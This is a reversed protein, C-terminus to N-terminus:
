PHRGHVSQFLSERLRRAQRDDPRLELYIDIQRLAAEEKGQELYVSALAQEFEPRTEPEVLLRARLILREAADTFRPPLVLYLRALAYYCDVYDPALFLCQKLTRDAFASADPVDLNHGLRFLDGTRVLLAPNKLDVNTLRISRDVAGSWRALLLARHKESEIRPPREGLSEELFAIEDDLARIERVLGRDSPDVGLIGRGPEVVSPSACGLAILLATLSAIIRNAM